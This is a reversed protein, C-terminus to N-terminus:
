KKDEAKLGMRERVLDSATKGDPTEVYSKNDKHQPAEGTMSAFLPNRTDLTIGALKAAKAVRANIETENTEPMGALIAYNEELTKKIDEKDGYISKLANTKTFDRETVEKEALKAKIQDLEIAKEEDRKLLETTNADYAKKEDESMKSYRSFNNAREVNLKKLDALEKEKTEVVGELEKKGAETAAKVEDATFVEIEVGDDNEHTIPM